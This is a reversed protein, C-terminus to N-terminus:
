RHVEGTARELPLTIEVRFRGDRKAWSMRARDGYLSAFRRRLNELGVGGGAASRADGDAPNEVVAHLWDGRVVSEIRIVGGDVRDRIGHKIANEVLPQLVMPPVLADRAGDDARIDCDLRAGFRIKEVSLFSECLAIEEGLPIKQRDSLALTQRFFQALEITMARAAAGDTTTLASISNLSNFLFHPNVQSRLAQLEADRALLRSQADRREAARANEIGLLVDHALISLLYLTVGGAFLMAALERGIAIGLEPAIARLMAAWAECLALWFLGAFLSGATFLAVAPTVARRSLPLARCVYYASTGVFGYVICAPVAFAAAAAWSAYGAIVLLVAVVAGVIVWALAYALLRRADALIPHV